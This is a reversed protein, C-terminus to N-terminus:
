AIVVGRFLFEKFNGFGIWNVPAGRLGSADTFAYVTTAMSPGLAILFYLFVGPILLMLPTLRRWKGASGFLYNKQMVAM